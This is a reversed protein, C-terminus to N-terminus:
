LPTNSQERLYTERQRQKSNDAHLHTHVDARHLRLFQVAAEVEVEVESPINDNVKDPNVHKDLHLDPPYPEERHYLTQFGGRIKEM